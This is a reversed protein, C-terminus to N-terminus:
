SGAFPTGFVGLALEAWVLFFAGLVACGLLIRHKIQPVRQPIQALIMGTTFLLVGMTLFDILDWDVEATFQMAVFPILLLCATILLVIPFYKM